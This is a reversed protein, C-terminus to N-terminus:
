STAQDQRRHENPQSEIHSVETSTAPHKTSPTVIPDAKRVPTEDYFSFTLQQGTYTTTTM